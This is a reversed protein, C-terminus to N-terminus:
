RPTCVSASTTRTARASRMETIAVRASGATAATGSDKRRVTTATSLIRNGDGVIVAGVHQGKCEARAAIAIAVGLYYDDLAPRNSM